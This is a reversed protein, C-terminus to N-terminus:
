QGRFRSPCMYYSDFGDLQEMLRNRLINKRMEHDVSLYIGVDQISCLKEM